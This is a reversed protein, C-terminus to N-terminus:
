RNKLQLVRFYEPDTVVFSSGNCLGEGNEM